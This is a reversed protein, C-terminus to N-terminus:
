LFNLFLSVETFPQNKETKTLFKRIDDMELSQAQIPPYLTNPKSKNPTCFTGTKLKKNNSSVQYKEMTCKYLLSMFHKYRAETVQLM